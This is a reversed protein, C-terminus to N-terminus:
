YTTFSNYVLAIPSRERERERKRERYIYIYIYIHDGKKVHGFGVGKKVHGFLEAEM